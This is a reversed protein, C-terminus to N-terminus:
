PRKSPEKYYILKMFRDKEKKKPIDIPDAPYKWGMGHPKSKPTPLEKEFPIVEPQPEPKPKPARKKPLPKEFPIEKTIEDVITSARSSDDVVKNIPIQKPEEEKKPLIEKLEEEKVAGKSVLAKVKNMTRKKLGEEKIQEKNAVYRKNDRTMKAERAKMLRAKLIELQEPTMEKKPRAPQEM